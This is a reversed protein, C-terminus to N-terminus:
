FMMFIKAIMLTEVIGIVAYGFIMKLMDAQGKRYALIERKDRM